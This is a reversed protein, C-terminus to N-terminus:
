CMGWLVTFLPQGADADVIIGRGLLRYIPAAGYWIRALSIFQVANLANICDVADENNLHLSRLDKDVVKRQTM